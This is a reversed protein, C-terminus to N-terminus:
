ANGYAHRHASCTTDFQKKIARELSDVSGFGALRAIRTVPWKTNELWDRAAELRATRVYAAPTTHTEQSFKRMFNRESMGTQVALSAVSLDGSLNDSIWNILESFKDNATSQAALARSYQSQGGSRRLFLVMSKAIKAAVSRGLDEQVLALAADISATVGASTFFKGDRVYIANADVNISPRLTALLTCSAWHTVASRKDLLGSAALVFAGTCV